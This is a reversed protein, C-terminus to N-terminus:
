DESYSDLLQAAVAPPLITSWIIEGPDPDLGMVGNPEPMWSGPDVGPIANIIVAFVKPDAINETGVVLYTEGDTARALYSNLTLLHAASDTQGTTIREYPPDI